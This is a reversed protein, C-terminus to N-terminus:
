RRRTSRVVRVSRRPKMTMTARVNETILARRGNVHKEGIVRTWGRDLYARQVAAEFTFSNVALGGGRKRREIRLSRDAANYTRIQTPTTVTEARVRGTVLDTVITHSRDATLWQVTKTHSPIANPGSVKEIKVTHEIKGAAVDFRAESPLPLPTETAMAPAAAALGLAAVAAVLTTPLHKIM